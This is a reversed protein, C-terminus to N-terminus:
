KIKNIFKDIKPRKKESSKSDMYFNNKIRIKNDNNITKINENFKKLKLKNNKLIHSKASSVGGKEKENNTKNSNPITVLSTSNSQLQQQEVKNKNKLENKKKLDIYYRKTLSNLCNVNKECIEIFLNIIKDKKIIESEDSIKNKLLNNWIDTGQNDLLQRQSLLYQKNGVFLNINNKKFDLKTKILQLKNNKKIINISKHKTIIMNNKYKKFKNFLTTYQKQYELKLQLIKEIILIVELLLMDDNISKLYEKTYYIIVDNKLTEFNNMIENEDSSISYNSSNNKIESSIMSCNNKNMNEDNLININNLSSISKSIEKNILNINKDQNSKLMSNDNNKDYVSITQTNSLIFSSPNIIEDLKLKNKFNNDIILDEIKKNNTEITITNNYYNNNKNNENKENELSMLPKRVYFNNQTKQKPQENLTMENDKVKKFKSKSKNNKNSNLLTDKLNLSIKDNESIIQNLSLKISSSSNTNKLNKKIRLLNDMNIKEKINKMSAHNNKHHKNTTSNKPTPNIIINSRGRTLTAPSKSYINKNIKIKNKSKIKMSTKIKIRINNNIISDPIHNSSKTSKGKAFSTSIDIINNKITNYNETLNSKDIFNEIKINECSIALSNETNHINKSGKITLWRIGFSPYFDTLGIIRSNNRLLILKITNNPNILLNIKQQDKLVKELDYNLVNKEYKLLMSITEAQNSKLHNTKPSIDLIEVNVNMM